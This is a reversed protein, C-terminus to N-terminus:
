GNRMANVISMYTERSELAWEPSNTMSRFENWTRMLEECAPVLTVTIRKRDDESLGSLSVELIRESNLVFARQRLLEDIDDRSTKWNRSHQKWLDHEGVETYFAAGLPGFFLYEHKRAFAKYAEEARQFTPLLRTKLDVVFTALDEKQGPTLPLQWLTEASKEAADYADKVHPYSTEKLFDRVMDRAERFTAFVREERSMVALLDLRRSQAQSLVTTMAKTGAKVITEIVGFDVVRGAASVVQAIKAVMAEKGEKQTTAATKIAGNLLETYQESISQLRSDISNDAEVIRKWKEEFEAEAKSLARTQVVMRDRFEAVRLMRLHHFFVSEQGMIQVVWNPKLFSGGIVDRVMAGADWGKQIWHLNCLEDKLLLLDAMNEMRGDRQVFYSDLVKRISEKMVPDYNSQQELSLLMEKKRAPYPM